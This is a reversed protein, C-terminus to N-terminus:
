ISGKNELTELMKRNYVVLSEAYNKSINKLYICFKSDRTEYENPKNLCHDDGSRQPFNQMEMEAEEYSSYDTGNIRYTFDDGSEPYIMEYEYKSVFKGSTYQRYRILEGGYQITLLYDVGDKEATEIWTCGDQDSCVPTAELVNVAEKGNWSWVENFYETMDHEENERAYGLLLEDSGDKDFDFLKVACLGTMQTGFTGDAGEPIEYDGEGYLEQYKMCLDYYAKYQGSKDQRDSAESVFEETKPAMREVAQNTDEALAEAYEEPLFNLDIRFAEGKPLYSLTEGYIDVDTNQKPFASKAANVEKDTVKEGNLFLAIEDTKNSWRAEFHFVSNFKSGDYQFYETYEGGGELTFYSHEKDATVELWKGQDQDHSLLIKKLINVLKGKQWAWVEGFNEETGFETQGPYALILEKTGDRNFDYLRVICLGAMQWRAPDFGDLQRYRAEGYDRQYKRCLEYFSTYQQTRDAQDAIRDAITKKDTSASVKKEGTKLIKDAQEFKGQETYTDALKIYAEAKKPEIDIAELFASEAKDYNMAQLYRNATRLAGQYDAEKQSSLYFIYGTICAVIILLLAAGVFFRKQSRTETPAPAAFSEAQVEVSCTPTKGRKLAAGCKECFRAYGKNEQGCKECRM